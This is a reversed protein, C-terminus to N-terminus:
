SVRPQPHQQQMCCGEPKPDGAATGQALWGPQRTNLFVWVAQTPNLRGLPYCCLYRETCGRCEGELAGPLARKRGRGRRGDQADLAEDAQRRAALQEEYGQEHDENDIGASEYSDLASKAEYDRCDILSVATAVHCTVLAGTAAKHTRTM